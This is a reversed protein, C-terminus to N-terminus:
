ASVKFHKLGQETDCPSTRSSLCHESGKVDNHPRLFGPFEMWCQYNFNEVLHTACHFM